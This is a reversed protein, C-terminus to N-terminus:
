PTMVARYFRRSSNTSVTDVWIFPSSPLVFNTLALWEAAYVAEACEIQYLRGVNGKITLCPYFGLSLETDVLPTSSLLSAANATASVANDVVTPATSAPQIPRAARAPPALPLPSSAFQDLPTVSIDDLTPGCFSGVTSQFRLRSTPGAAQVVYEHYEWGMNTFSHGGIDFRLEEQYITGIEEFIGNLDLSQRGEATEWYDSGVIEVTGREITWGGLYNGAHFVRYGQVGAPNEFGGNAVLNVEGARGLQSALAFVVAWFVAVGSWKAKM